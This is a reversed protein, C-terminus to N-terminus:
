LGRSDFYKEVKLGLNAVISSLPPAHAIPKGNDNVRWWLWISTQFPRSGSEAFARASEHVAIGFPPARRETEYAQIVPSGFFVNTMINTGGVKTSGIGNKLQDGNIVPGYAIGGRVLFRDQQHKTQLFRAALIVMVNQLLETIAGKGDSFVFMGHNVPLIAGQLGTQTRALEAAMHLRAIVNATRELSISMLYGAGMIDLWGVYQNKPVLSESTFELDQNMQKLFASLKAAAPPVTQKAM